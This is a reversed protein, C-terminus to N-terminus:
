TLRTTPGPPLFPRKIGLKQTKGNGQTVQTTNGQTSPRKGQTSQTAKAGSSKTPQTTPM